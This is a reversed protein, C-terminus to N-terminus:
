INRSILIKKWLLGGNKLHCAWDHDVGYMDDLYLGDNQADDVYGGNTKEKGVACCSFLLCLQHHNRYVDDM